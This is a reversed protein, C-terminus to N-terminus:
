KEQAVLDTTKNLKLQVAETVENLQAIEAYITYIGKRGSEIVDDDFVITM